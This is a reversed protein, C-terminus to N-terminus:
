GEIISALARVIRIADAECIDRLVVPLNYLMKQADSFVKNERNAHCSLLSMYTLAM